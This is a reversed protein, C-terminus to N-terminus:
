GYLQTWLPDRKINDNEVVSDINVQNCEGDRVKRAVVVFRSSSFETSCTSLTILEDGYVVDIDNHMYSRSNVENIYANFEDETNFNLVNWYDFVNELDTDSDSVFYGIIKYEEEDYLTSMTFTPNEKYFDIDKYKALDGFMTKDYQNHGHIVINDSRENQTLVNRYDMFITGAPNEVGYFDHELYYYNDEGQVIPLDINTGDITIWGITDENKELLPGFKDINAGSESSQNDEDNTSLQELKDDLENSSEVSSNYYLGQLDGNTSVTRFYNYVEIGIFYLSVALVVWAILYILRSLFSRKKKVKAM